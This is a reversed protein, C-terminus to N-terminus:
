ESTSAAKDAPPWSLTDTTTTSGQNENARRDAWALTNLLKLEDVSKANLDILRRNMVLVSLIRARSIAVNLRNKSYFFDTHRPLDEPSSSTMSILVVEAEQGQFKDVTGVRANDPLLAHLLNVQANYPAVVLIDPLGIVGESGDRRVFRTGLLDDMLDRIGHAEEESTQSCGEHSMAAMGLGFAKLRVDHGPELLLCQRACDPHAKLRGEYVADSIFSCIDPHMRWSTDLLIGRDPAITAAGQLYYDLASQGSEGPHVGQIPQPLQMQDGVLVITRTTGAMAVMNGLSVQGAEDVFLYDVKHEMDERAFLFATGGILDYRHDEITQNDYVDKIMTGGLASDPDNGSAKKAGEFTVGRETAVEEIRSLLNNIAKHSNSTVGIRKGAQILSVIVQASTYTKGTGPPGQIFLLGDDLDLACRTAAAILSEGQGVLPGDHASKFRPRQRGLLDFIANSGNGASLASVNRLVGGALIRDDLPWGAIISGDEPFTEELAMKRRVTVTGMEADIAKITGLRMLTPAHLVDAGLKLKTEQPPFSYRASRMNRPEDTLWDVGVPSIAGLCELDDILEADAAACRDFVAWQAPKKARKHFDVLLALTEGIVSPLHPSTRAAVRVAERMAEVVDLEEQKAPAKREPVAKSWWPLAGPRLTLLWDRLGETNVCDVRNYDLIGDLIAQDGHERWRHYHVISAGADTVAEERKEAFFGELTKLSMNRHSTRIAHRVIAYLDVFKEGRLLDDIADERSAFAKALRRLVSVEYNAYHYIYAGPHAAVHATFWDVMAEFAQQEADRDHGWRFTFIAAGQEDRRHVGWLYELGGPHLPDGELDFFLDQADPQPLRAFGRGEQINLLETLAQGNVARAQLAAQARLREFTMPAMRRVETGEPLEALATLTEVGASRLKKAQTRNLGAVRSLHDIREWEAGCYDRWGCLKCGYNPEAESGMAGEDVFDLYRRMAAGLSERFDRYFFSRESGDGLVLHLREPMVGQAEAILGAYLSLQTLHKARPERALKTDVPEYSWSGLASPMEVRRLFDIFGHWAGNIFTAQFIVSAGARMADLTSTARASLPGDSTIEVVDAQARLRELYDAEHTLGADAILGMSEDDSVRDPLSAADRLKRLDLAVAHPCDLYKNLDSASHLLEENYIRM